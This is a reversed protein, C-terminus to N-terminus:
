LNIQNGDLQLLPVNFDQYTDDDFELEMHIDKHSGDILVKSKITYKLGAKTIQWDKEKESVEVAQKLVSELVSQANPALTDFQPESFNHETINKMPKNIVWRNGCRQCVAWSRVKSSKRMLIPIWIIAGITLIALLIWLCAGLCGRKKNEAVAQVIVDKSGCNPCIM